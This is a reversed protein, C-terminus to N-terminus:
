VDISPGLLRQIFRKGSFIQVMRLAHWAKTEVMSKSLEKSRDSDFLFDAFSKHLLRTRPEGFLDKKMQVITALRSCYVETEGYELSLLIDIDAPRMDDYLAVCAM